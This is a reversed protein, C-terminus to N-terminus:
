ARRNAMALLFFIGVALLAVGLTEGYRGLFKDLGVYIRKGAQTVKAWGAARTRVDVHIVNQGETFGVGNFGSERALDFYLRLRPGSFFAPDDIQIDFAEGTLHKSKPEGGVALNREPTRHASLIRWSYNFRSVLSNLRYAALASVGRWGNGLQSPTFFTIKGRGFDELTLTRGKGRQEVAMGNVGERAELTEATTKKEVKILRWLAGFLGLLERALFIVDTPKM